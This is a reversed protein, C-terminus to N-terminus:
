VVSWYVVALVLLCSGLGTIDV